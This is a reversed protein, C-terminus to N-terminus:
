RRFKLTFVRKGQLRLIYVGESLSVPLRMEPTQTVIAQQLLQGQMDYVLLQSGTDCDELGQIVLENDKSFVSLPMLSKLSKLGTAAGLVDRFHLVFRNPNDAPNTTFRYSQQKLDVIDGTKLDELQVAEPSVLTELRSATLEVEQEVASPILKVPLTEEDKSIVSTILDANDPSTTYIQSVGKSTNIYKYADYADTANKSAHNRFVVCMRDFGETTQDKVELLLEDTITNSSKLFNAKGHTRASAPIKLTCDKWAYLLFLQMPPLSDTVVTSGTAQGIGYSVSISFTKNAANATTKQGSHMVWYGAYIDVTTAMADRADRTVGWIDASSKDQTLASLDLPCTYPNGLYNYGAKLPIIVDGTNLSEGTYADAKTIPYGSADVIHVGKLSYRNMLLTDRMRNAYSDATLNWAPNMLYDNEGTYGYVNQGIIYGRGAELPYDANLIANGTAGGLGNEDPALLYNYTFYDAYMKKFPPSFGMFKGERGKTTNGIVM